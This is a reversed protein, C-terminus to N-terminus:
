LDLSKGIHQLTLDVMGGREIVLAGTNLLFGEVDRTSARGGIRELAEVVLVKYGAHALRAAASIGGAGSGIVIADFQPTM